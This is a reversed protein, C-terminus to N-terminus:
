FAEPLTIADRSETEESQVLADFGYLWPPYAM